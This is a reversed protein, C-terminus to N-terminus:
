RAEINGSHALPAPYESIPAFHERWGVPIAAFLLQRERQVVDM